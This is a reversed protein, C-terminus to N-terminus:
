SGVPHTILTVLGDVVRVMDVDPNVLWQMQVGDITAIVLRALEDAGVDT